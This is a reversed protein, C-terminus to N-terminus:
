KKAWAVPVAQDQQAYQTKERALSRDYVLVIGLEALALSHVTLQGHKEGILLANLGSHNRSQAGSVEYTLADGNANRILAIVPSGTSKITITYSGPQLVAKGWHTEATLTIKGVYAPSIAQANATGAFLSTLAVVVLLAIAAMGRNAKM